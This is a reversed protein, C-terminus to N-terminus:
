FKRSLEITWTRGLILHGHVSADYGFNSPAVPPAKDFLNVVGLRISTNRLWAPNDEGLDYGLNLNYTVVSSLVFPYITRGETEIPRIYSPQGLLEYVEKNTTAATTASSGVFYAAFGASWPGKSWNVSTTSRWKAAGSLGRLQTIVEGRDEFFRSTYAEKLYSWESSVVFRGHDTFTRGYRLGLDWGSVKQNNLNRFPTNVSFIRGVPAKPNGPNAANYANFGAIDEPTPAMRVIDSDGKYNATGSGLDIQGIPVGRALESAVYANLLATDSARVQNGSRQGVRDKIRIDWYDATLSLGEIQPIDLVIGWTKGRSIAPKLNPNGGFETRDIYPGENLVPNRYSDVTGPAGSITWRTSTYLEPLSPALFGENYSGRLMLFAFPRLNAGIKPKTTNGFDSYDEFRASGNLEFAYVFPVKNEPAVLPVVVEAFASKVDRDGFVNPRPPHLIIDNDDAALGSDPPNLGHFPPRIDELEEKRYEVGFASSVSGAWYDFFGGTVKADLSTLISKADRRYVETFSQIVEPPNTYPQDAVVAGGQVKFTYGFPNYATTDTRALAQHLKSERVDNYAEDRGKVQNRFAAVEWRWANGLDGRIGGLLRYVDARTKVNEAELDRFTLSLLGVERPDGAIRPTGAIRGISCDTRGAPLAPTAAKPCWAIQSSSGPVPAAPFSCQAPPSCSQLAM